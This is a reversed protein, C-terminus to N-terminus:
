GNDNDKLTILRLSRLAYNSTLLLGITAPNDINMNVIDQQDLFKEYEELTIPRVGTSDAKVFLVTSPFAKIGNYIIPDGDTTVVFDKNKNYHILYM